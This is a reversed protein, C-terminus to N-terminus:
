IINALVLICYYIMRSKGSILVFELKQEKSVNRMAELSGNLLLEPTDCGTRGFPADSAAEIIAADFRCSDGSSISSNYDLDLNIDSVHIFHVLNDETTIEVPTPRRQENEWDCHPCHIRLAFTLITFLLLVVCIIALVIVLFFAATRKKKRNNKSDEPPVELGLEEPM